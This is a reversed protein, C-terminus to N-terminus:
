EYIVSELILGQPPAKFIKVRKSPRNLLDLLNSTTFKEEIVAIMSGVLYRVMHHLFRNGRIKYITMGNELYWKSEYITCLTNKKEISFKSFSLFDYQGIFMRSLTNLKELNLRTKIWCQNRFLLSNGTYLQYRYDRYSADFRSHFHNSIRTISLIRCDVPLNANFANILKDSKFNIDIDSHAVQGWAHVGTDTRGAGHIPIRTKSKLIKKLSGELVGQITRKEKQLQWGFFKSGDYQIVLKYRYQM